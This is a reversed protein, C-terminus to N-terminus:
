GCLVLGLRRAPRLRRHHSPRHCPSARHRPPQALRRLGVHGCSRCLRLHVWVSDIALCEECGRTSPTVAHIQDTHRCHQSMRQHVGPQRQCTRLGAGPQGSTRPVSPDACGRRRGRGSRRGRAQGLGCACRRHRIRWPSQNGAAPVGTRRRWARHRDHRLRAQRHGRLGAALRHQPRRRRVPVPAAVGRARNCRGQAHAVGRGALRARPRRGARGSRHRHAAAREAVRRYTRHPIAVDLKGARRRSHDPATGQGAAGPVGGGARCFQWRGGAGGRRRRVPASGGALGLLVCRPRRLSGPGRHGPAPLACGVRDGGHQGAVTQWRCSGAEARWRRPRMGAHGSRDPDGTGRRIEAGPQVRARGAGARFHRHSLRSLKRYAGLCRGARRHRAPGAGAGVLRRIRCVGGDGTRCPRRGRDGRRLTQGPRHGADHGPLARSRCRQAPAARAREPMGDGTSRAEPHGPAAGIRPRRRRLCGDGHQPLRQPDFLGAVPDSAPRGARRDAGFGVCRGRDARRPAPDICADGSRGSRGFQDDARASARYRIAAGPLRGARCTWGGAVRARGASEGRRHVPRAHAAHDAKRQGIWRPAGSRHRGGAGGVGACPCRRGRVGYRGRRVTAGARQRLAPHDVVPGRGARSVDSPPPDPGFVHLRSAPPPDCALMPLPSPLPM